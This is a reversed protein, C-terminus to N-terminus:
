KKLMRVKRKVEVKSEGFNILLGVDIGTATLYNVLQVEHIKSLTKISKLEVIVKNEVLLDAIFSGVIENDYRVIIPKQNEVDLGTKKLEIIISKEYVSELYGFGFTNYVKYACKIIKETIHQCEM